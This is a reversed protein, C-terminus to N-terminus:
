LQFLLSKLLFTGNLQKDANIQFFRGNEKHKVAFTKRKEGRTSNKRILHLEFNFEVATGIIPKLYSAQKSIYWKM